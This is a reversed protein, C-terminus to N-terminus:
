GWYKSDLNRYQLAEAVFPAGIDEQGALDAITRAVKLVRSYARMSLGFRKVAAHLLQQGEADPTCFAETQQASLQANCHIGLSAYRQQQRVRAAVVREKVTASSEEETRTTIEEVPVAEVELQMDIRDLLPGSIRDLYKRIDRTSCRCDKGQVGYLGCPCPNMAAMLMVRAPYQAHANIRAISVFGDELPQRMAELAGRQFEPLEDLFLVGGHALSIEGPKAKSGGGVLAVASATHHPARFPRLSLLGSGAPLAGAASHIRTTELAEEFTMDPLIGPLCRALMTKGSGPPGIMLANHGGAAAIELARKAGRQGRVHRLDHGLDRAVQRPQYPTPSLPAIRVQGTLHEVAERLTNVPFISLGEVCAVEQANATPVVVERIGASRASIVLPLVGRIPTLEGGLALEGLLLRTEPYEPPPMQESAVLIGLAIALDFAPGEKKTDAPALNLTLRAVPWQYGSNTLAARVRERSEKVAADPLGVIEFMPLGSSLFAEVTVPFGEIGSLGYCLMQSLM